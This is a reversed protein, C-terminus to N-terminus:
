RPKELTNMRSYLTTRNVGLARAAQSVNGASLKMAAAIYAREWAALKADLAFAGGRALERWALDEIEDATDRGDAGGDPGNLAGPDFELELAAADVRAGAHKTVLRIVVNRLERVNGFFPYDGWVREAGADLTFPAVGAAEAYLRRFHALLLLRDGAMERLAPVQMTFVSLRHYLDTRFRGQKCEVRLDRNTAAIVRAQSRRVQTEGVRNYEGNELVRLLKAQLDLPLEGIEDLFLTGDGADEFYGAKNTQAGTFAGKAYGFLAPEMLTPSIAACNLAYYPKSRRLGKTHLCSAAVEKGSGSEGAILVPFPSDAYLTIQTKLAAMQASVGVLADLPDTAPSRGASSNSVEAESARLAELLLRRLQQPHAPKPVFETAGLARAHRGAAEESQGSLVVIKTAPSHALLASILQYGEDPVHQAPPLGLDILALPPPAPLARLRDIAALRTGASVVDFDRGLVISLTDVILQDDDVLLLVPLASAARTAGSVGPFPPSSTNM